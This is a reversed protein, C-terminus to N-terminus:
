RRKKKGKVPELGPDRFVWWLAFAIAYMLVVRYSHNAVGWANRAFDGYHARSWPGLKGSYLTMVEVVTALVHTVALIASASLFGGFNRDSLPRPVAAFLALLLVFNFTLDRIPIGPRKSRPDFDRRDVTVYNDAQPRLSTVKPRETARIVAEAGAAIVRDYVPSLLFWIAVGAAFGALAKLAVRWKIGPM